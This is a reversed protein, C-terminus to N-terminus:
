ALEHCYFWPHVIVNIDLIKPGSFFENALNSMCGYTLSMKM